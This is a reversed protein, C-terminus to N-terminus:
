GERANLNRSSHAARWLSPTFGELRPDLGVRGALISLEALREMPSGGPFGRWWHPHTLLQVGHASQKMLATRLSTGWSGGSDSVYQQTHQAVRRYISFHRDELLTRLGDLDGPAHISVLSIDALELLRRATDIDDDIRSALDADRLDGIFHLGIEHGLEHIDRIMRAVTVDLVNFFPSRIAIFYTSQVGLSSEAGAMHKAIAVDFEVDHRLQVVGFNPESSLPRLMSGEDLLGALLRPYPQEYLREEPWNM